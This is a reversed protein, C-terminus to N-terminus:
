RVAALLLKKAAKSFAARRSKLLWERHMYTAFYRLPHSKADGGDLVQILMELHARNWAWFEVGAVDARLFLPGIERM